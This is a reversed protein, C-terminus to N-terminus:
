GNMRDLARKGKKKEGERERVCVGLTHLELTELTEPHMLYPQSAEWLALLKGGWYIINTNAVNKQIIDGINALPGGSRQTGFTNRYLIRQALSEAEFGATQSPPACSSSSSSSSSSSLLTFVLPSVPQARWLRAGHM